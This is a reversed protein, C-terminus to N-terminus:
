ILCPRESGEDLRRPQPWLWRDINGFPPGYTPRPSPKVRQLDDMEILLYEYEVACIIVRNIKPNRVIARSIEGLVTM